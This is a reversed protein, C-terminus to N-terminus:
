KRSTSLKLRDRVRRMGSDAIKRAAKEIKDSDGIEFRGCPESERGKIHKVLLDVYKAVHIPRDIGDVHDALISMILVALREANHVSSHVDDFTSLLFECLDAGLGIAVASEIPSLMAETQCFLSPNLVCGHVAVLVRFTEDTAGYKDVYIKLVREIKTTIVSEESFPDGGLEEKLAGWFGDGLGKGGALAVAVEWEGELSFARVKRAKRKVFGDLEASDACLVIGDFRKFGLCASMKARTLPLKPLVAIM